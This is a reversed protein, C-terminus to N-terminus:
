AALVRDVFARVTDAYEAPTSVWRAADAHAPQASGSPSRM